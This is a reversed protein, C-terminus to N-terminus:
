PLPCINRQSTGRTRFYWTSSQFLSLSFYRPVTCICFHISGYYYYYHSHLSCSVDLCRVISPSRRWVLMSRSAVLCPSSHSPSGVRSLPSHPASRTCVNCYFCVVLYCDVIAHISQRGLAQYKYQLVPYQVKRPVERTWRPM